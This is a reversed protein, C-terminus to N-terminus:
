PQECRLYDTGSQGEFISIQGDPLMTIAFVETERDDGEVCDAEIIVALGSEHRDMETFTCMLDDVRLTKADLHLIRFAVDEANECDRTSLGWAGALDALPPVEAWYQPSEALMDALETLQTRKTELDEARAALGSSMMLFVLGVLRLGICTRAIMASVKPASGCQRFRLYTM